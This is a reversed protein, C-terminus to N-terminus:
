RERSLFKPCAASSPTRALTDPDVDFSAGDYEYRAKGDQVFFRCKAEFAVSRTAGNVGPQDRYVVEKERWSLEGGDLRMGLVSSAMAEAPVADFSASVFRMFGVVRGTSQRKALEYRFHSSGSFDKRLRARRDDGGVEYIKENSVVFLDFKMGTPSAMLNTFSMQDSYVGELLGGELSYTLEDTYLTKGMIDRRLFDVIDRM